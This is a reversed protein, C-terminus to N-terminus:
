REHHHGNAFLSFLIEGIRDKGIKDVFVLHMPILLLIKAFQIKAHIWSTCNWSLGAIWLIKCMRCAHADLYCRSEVWLDYINYLNHRWPLFTHRREVELEKLCNSINFLSRFPWPHLSSRYVQIHRRVLNSPSRPHRKCDQHRELAGM